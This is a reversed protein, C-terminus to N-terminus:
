NEIDSLIHLQLLDYRYVCIKGSAALIRDSFNPLTWRGGKATSGIM